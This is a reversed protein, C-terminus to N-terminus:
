AGKYFGLESYNVEGLFLFKVFERSQNIGENELITISYWIEPYLEQPVEFLRTLGASEHQIAISGPLIVFAGSEIAARGLNEFNKVRVSRGACLKLVVDNIIKGMVNGPDPVIFASHRKAIKLVTNLSNRKGILGMIPSSEAICVYLKDSAFPVGNLEPKQGLHAISVVAHHGKELDASLLDSNEFDATVIMLRRQAYDKIIKRFPISLSSDVAIHLDSIAFSNLPVSLILACLGFALIRLMYFSISLIVDTKASAAYKGKCSTTRIRSDFDQTEHLYRAQM